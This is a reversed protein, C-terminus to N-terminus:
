EQRELAPRKELYRKLSTWIRLEQQRGMRAVLPTLLGLFGRPKLNWSWHMRTGEPVPDFVLRGEIDMSPVRSVSSLLHPREFGTFEITMEIPKGRMSMVAAFRTGLGIPEASTLECQLMELNYLPEHREDAVFDFVEEVPRHIIIEGEVHAM